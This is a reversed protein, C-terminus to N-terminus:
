SFLHQLDQASVGQIISKLKILVNIRRSTIHRPHRFTDEQMHSVVTVNQLERYNKNNNIFKCM